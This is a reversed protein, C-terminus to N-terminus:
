VPGGVIGGGLGRTCHTDPGKGLLLTAAAHRQSGAGDLASILGMQSKIAQELTVKLKVM